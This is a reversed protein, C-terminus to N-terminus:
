VRRRSPPGRRAAKVCLLHTHSYIRQLFLRV